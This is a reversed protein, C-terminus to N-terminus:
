ENKRVKKQCCVLNPPLDVVKKKPDKADIQGYIGLLPKECEYVSKIEGKGDTVCDKLESEQKVEKGFFKVKGVTAYLLIFLIALGLAAIIIVTIPLGQAKQRKFIKYTM